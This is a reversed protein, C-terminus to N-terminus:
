ILKNLNTVVSQLNSSQLPKTINSIKSKLEISHNGIFAVIHPYPKGATPNTWKVTKTTYVEKNVPDFQNITAVIETARIFMQIYKSLGM